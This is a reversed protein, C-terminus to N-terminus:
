KPFCGTAVITGTKKEILVLEGTKKNIAMNFRSGNKYVYHSKLTEADKEGLNRAIKNARKNNGVDRFDNEEANKAFKINESSQLISGTGAIVMGTLTIDVAATAATSASIGIGALLLSGGGTPIAAIIALGIIALSLGTAIIPIWDNGNKDIRCVPNNGCYAFLNMGIIADTSLQLDANLFRGTAPDYYRSNLYYLGTESDYYYGRYRLPNDAGITSALTGTVSLINGWPDYTYETVVNGSADTIAIVDGQGNLIYYYSVGDKYLLFPAGNLDYEFYYVTNGTKQAVVKEGDLSYYTNVGNVTKRMRIGDSNYSYAISTGNVSGYILERGNWSFSMGDRYTLPNGIADYTFTQGAYGTLLDGWNANNYQYNVTTGNVTKSLINGGRDYTYAYTNTGDAASTLQNLADYTYTTTTNGSDTVSSINGNEDYTYGWGYNVGQGSVSEGVIRGTTTNGSTYYNYNRTYLPTTVGNQKYDVSVNQIRGLADYTFFREGYVM